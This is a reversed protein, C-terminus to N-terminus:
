RPGPAPPSPATPAPADREIAEIRSRLRARLDDDGSLRIAARWAEAAEERRGLAALSDGLAVWTPIHRRSEALAGRWAQVAGEHDGLAIRAKALNRWIRRGKAGLAIGRELAEAARAPEGSELLALGLNNYFHPHEPYLRVAEGLERAAGAPDDRDLLAGGVQAHMSAADRERQGPPTPVATVAVGLGFTLGLAALQRLRRQALARALAVAGAGALPLMPLIMPLRYRGSVFTLLVTAAYGLGFVLIPALERWRRREAVLGVAALPAVLGFGVSGWRLAPSVSEAWAYSSELPPEYRGLLWTLKVAMLRGWAVPEALAWDRARATWWASAESASLARGVAAEAVEVSTRVLSEQGGALGSGRPTKFLGDADPNNGIWVNVGGHATVVVWEGSAAHNRATIPGLALALGLSWGALRALRARRPADPRALEVALPLIPALGLLNPRGLAAIGLCLGAILAGWMGLKTRDLLLLSGACLALVWVEAVLNGANHVFPGYLCGFALTAIGAPRGFARTALRHTLWVTGLDVCAQVARVLLLDRGLLAYISALAVPALPNFTLAGEGLGEGAALRQALADYNAQDLQLGDFLPTQRLDLLWSVRLALGAALPVAVPWWPGRAERGASPEPGATPM